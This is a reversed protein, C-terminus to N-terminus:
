TAGACARPPPPDGNWWKPSSSGARAKPRISASGHGPRIFKGIERLTIWFQGKRFLRKQWSKRRSVIVRKLAPHGILLDSAEEEVLWDIHAQPYREKLAEVMPLTQVVDGIASLKVVLIRKPAGGPDPKM